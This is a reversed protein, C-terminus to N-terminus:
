IKLGNKIEPLWRCKLTQTNKKKLKKLIYNMLTFDMKQLTCHNYYAERLQVVM